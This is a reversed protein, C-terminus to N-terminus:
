FGILPKLTKLYFQQCVSPCVISSLCHTMVFFWVPLNRFVHVKECQQNLLENTVTPVPCLRSKMEGDVKEGETDVAVFSTFKSAINGHRSVAIIKHRLEDIDRGFSFGAFWM